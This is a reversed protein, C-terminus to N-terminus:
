TVTDALILTKLYALFWIDNKSVYGRGHRAMWPRSPRRGLAGIASVVKTHAELRPPVVMGTFIHLRGHCYQSAPLHTSGYRSTM